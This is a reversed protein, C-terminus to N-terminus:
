GRPERPRGPVGLAARGPAGQGPQQRQTSSAHPARGGGAPGGASPVSPTPSLQPCLTVGGPSTHGEPPEPRPPWVGFQSKGTGGPHRAPSDAGRCPQLEPVRRPFDPPVPAPTPPLRGETGVVAPKPPSGGSFATPHLPPRRPAASPRNPDRLTLPSRAEASSLPTLVPPGGRPAGGGEQCHSGAHGPCCRWELATLTRYAVRYLPRLVARYSGGSCALPWRCGQFVRQLFTGNQVHCSVTRTVTYSCWNSSPSGSIDGARTCPRGPPAAVRARNKPHGHPARSQCPPLVNRSCEWLAPVPRCCARLEGTDGAWGVCLSREGAGCALSQGGREPWGAETQGQLPPCAPAM